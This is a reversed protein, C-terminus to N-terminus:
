LVGRQQMYSLISRKVNMDEQLIKNDGYKKDIEITNKIRTLDKNIRASVLNLSSNHISPNISQLMRCMKTYRAASVKFTRCWVIMMDLLDTFIYKKYEEDYFDKVMDYYQQLFAKDIVTDNRFAELAKWKMLLNMTGIYSLSNGRFKTGEKEFSDGVYVLITKGPNKELYSLAGAISRTAEYVNGYQPYQKEIKQGLEFTDIKTCFEVHNIKSSVESMHNRYTPIAGIDVNINLTAMIFDWKFGANIAGALTAGSHGYECFADITYYKLEDEYIKIFHQEYYEVCRKDTYQNIEIYEQHTEVFQKYENLRKTNPHRILNKQAEMLEGYDPSINNYFTHVINKPLARALYLGFAGDSYTVIEQGVQIDKALYECLGKKKHNYGDRYLLINGRYGLDNVINQISVVMNEFDGFRQHYKIVRLFELIYYKLRM